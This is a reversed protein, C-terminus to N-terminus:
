SGSSSSRCVFRDHQVLHCMLEADAVQPLDLEVPM